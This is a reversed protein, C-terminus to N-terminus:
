GGNRLSSHRRQERKRRQHEHKKKLQERKKKAHGGCASRLRVRSNAKAGNHGIMAVVAKKRPGECLSESNTVLGKDGGELNLVFQSIPADPATDFTTRLAGRVADIRGVLEVNVQGELDVVMDPLRNSSARLYVSGQLPNDLLPTTAEAAGIRSGSPCADRAFQVRTCITDIHSNDLLEGKPLTVAVKRSNAEGPTTRLVARIAPHGRREVGGSFKLSLRPGYGLIACNAVQFPSRVDFLGSEDGTVEGDVSLPACSTPNLTFNPRDFTLQVSRTRLPIGGIIRPFPDSVTTVEATVPDVYLAARVAVTGLDYPGSVAPISVVFSVPAGKYPGALYVRGPVHLPRSGAGAGAVVRGLQSAAPCAPSAQETVGNYGGALLTAIASEPCYPIGRLSASFGPPTTIKLGALGQDGDARSLEVSFPSFAGGTNRTAAASFRPRFPRPAGPCSSEGPGSDITFFQTSDQDPLASDWPVFTSKVPFTGCQTPTALIGRESGFFHMRFRTLPSMPLDPFSVVLQGTQPDPIVSGALKIHTAFGDAVLILRYRDGPKPDGLYVYGPVPGPLASSDIELTGVKSFEPCRAAEETGFMADADSCSTKGDAANSNISFGPPLTVTAAKIASPSPTDASLLQPVTLDVDIGSATDAEETTPKASLSPNFSLLDCGTMAPYSTEGHEVGFDYSVTDLTSTLLGSCDTPNSLFPTRPSNSPGTPAPSASCEGPANPFRNESLGKRPDAFEQANICLLGPNTGNPVFRLPNHVADAPVGWLYQSVGFTPFLRLAGTFTATLGYDSGTRAKLVVYQPQNIPSVAPFALLGAQDPRPVMNYLPQVIFIGGGVGLEKYLIVAVIGVQSDIPCRFESLEVAGCRPTTNPNGIVGQPLGQIIEKPDNCYCPDNFGQVARNGIKYEVVIDPHGGAQTTSPTTSYSYVPSSASATGANAACVLLAAAFAACIATKMKGKTSM